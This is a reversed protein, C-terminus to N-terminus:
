LSEPLPQNFALMLFSFIDRYEAIRMSTPKGAGHGAKQEIRAIVPASGMQAHQMAAAFKFSHSPVVRDDHDATMVMTAPYQRPSLNHYPSYALLYPFQEADDASGYENVWAWGITFKQYRLMDLVGVAPLVAAFLDPRQTLAAGMLLGGNSRGYAGLYARQTYDHDILYEAAAFYDDFVNQKHELRGDHHWDQGYEGGGRLSPVAYIGGLDMWAINAPSFRPTMSINFGGYAYLLTPNTGDRKLGAKYSLMMPVRTGDKSQFFVQESVYDNPDFAVNPTQYATVERGEFDYRYVGTPHIYSNFQFYLSADQRRGQLGVVRGSGPLTLRQQHEGALSYTNIDALVDKLTVVVLHDNVIRVRNIPDAGQAVLEKWASREPRNIDIAIIRGRPAHDDTEFLLWDGDNGLFQYSAQLEPILPLVADEGLRQFFVRNRRDTGQGSTIILLQGDDSLDAGFSWEKQDPRDYVLRDQSQPSNLTHFYLKQFYNVEEMKNGGTPEDYRSYWIGSSDAAWEAGSFKVWELKDALPEGTDIQLFQWQQWDSGSESTGYALVKGDPSVSYGSLAVTGDSAFQNPDLLVRPSSSGADQVYLVSQSQLGDNAFHFKREGRVFPAGIKEYDWLETIRAQVTDRNPIQALFGEGFIRQREVWDLTKPSDLQELYRYPDAVAQGHLQEVLEGRESHPYALPQSLEASWQQCGAVALASVAALWLRTRKM